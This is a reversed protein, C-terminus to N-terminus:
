RMRMESKTLIAAQKLILQRRFMPQDRAGWEYKYRENGKLFDFTRVGEQLARKLAEGIIILGLDLKSFRPDFGTAYFYLTENKQFAYLSASFKGEFFLGYLRLSGKALLGAAAERNFTCSRDDSFAGLENRAAHRAQHNTVLADFLVPFTREDARVIKWPGLRSLRAAYYDLRQLMSRPICRQLDRADDINIAPCPVEDFVRSAWREPTEMELLLSGPRLQQFHCEQLCRTTSTLHEALATKLESRASPECICDMYDSVGSGMILVHQNQIFFPAAGVLTGNERFSLFWLDGQGLHRWWPILWDPDQFPTSDPCHDALESWENALLELGHLTCVEEV